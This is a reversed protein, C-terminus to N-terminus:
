DSNFEDWRACNPLDSDQDRVSLQVWCAQGTASDFRYISAGDKKFSYAHKPPREKEEISERQKGLEIGSSEGSSRGESYGSGYGIFHGLWFGLPAAIVITLTVARKITM